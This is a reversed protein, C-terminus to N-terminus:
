PKPKNILNEYKCRSDNCVRIGDHLHFGLSQVVIPFLEKLICTAVAIAAQSEKIDAIEASHMLTDRRKKIDMMEKWLKVSKGSRCYSEFDVCGYNDFLLILLNKVKDKRTNSM